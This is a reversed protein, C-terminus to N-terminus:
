VLNPYYIEYKKFDQLASRELYSVEYPGMALYKAEIDGGTKVKFTYDNPVAPRKALYVLLVAVIAVVQRRLFFRIFFDPFQESYRIAICHKIKDSEATLSFLFSSIRFCIQILALNM